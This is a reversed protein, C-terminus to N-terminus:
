NERGKEKLKKYEQRNVAKRRHKSGRWSKETIFEAM